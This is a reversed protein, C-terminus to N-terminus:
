ARTAAGGRAVWGATEHSTRLLRTCQAQISDVRDLASFFPRGDGDEIPTSALAAREASTLQFRELFAVVTRERRTM